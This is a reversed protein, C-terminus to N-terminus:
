GIKYIRIINENMKTAPLDPHQCFSHPTGDPYAPYTLNSGDAPAQHHSPFGQLLVELQYASDFKNM